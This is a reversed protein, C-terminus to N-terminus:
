GGVYWTNTEDSKFWFNSGANRITFTSLGTNIGTTITDIGTRNITCSNSGLNYVGFQKRSTAAPLTITRGGSTTDCFILGVTSAVTYPSNGANVTVLTPNM